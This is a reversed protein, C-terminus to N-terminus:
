EEGSVVSPWPGYWSSHLMHGRDRARRILVFDDVSFSPSATNTAKNHAAAARERRLSASREVKKHMRDLAAPLKAIFLLQSAQAHM